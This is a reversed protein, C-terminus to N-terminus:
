IALCTLFLGKIQNISKFTFYMVRRGVLEVRDSDILVVAKNFYCSLKIVFAERVWKQNYSYVNFLLVKDKKM